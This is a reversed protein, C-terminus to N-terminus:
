AQDQELCVTSSKGGSKKVLRINDVKMGPDIPKCMDYITLASAAVAVLAEMEVGTKGTCKVTATVEVSSSNTDLSFDVVVEDLLLPHCLPILHPTQKAATIGALRAVALVDGKPVQGKSLLELTPPRMKVVGKAIAERPTAAKGSTDVMRAQGQPARHKSQNDM